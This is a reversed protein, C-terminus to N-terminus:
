GISMRYGGGPDREFEKNLSKEVSREVGRFFELKDLHQELPIDLTLTTASKAERFPKQALYAFLQTDYGVFGDDNQRVDVILHKIGPEAKLDSFIKKM